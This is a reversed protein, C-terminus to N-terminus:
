ECTSEKKAKLKHYRERQYALNYAKRNIMYKKEAIQRCVNCEPRLIVHKVGHKDKYSNKQFKVKIKSSGTDIIDGERRGCRTCVRNTNSIDM